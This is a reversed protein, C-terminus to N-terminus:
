MMRSKDNQDHSPTSGHGTPSSERTSIPSASGVRKQTRSPDSRKFKHRVFRMLYANIRQLFPYLAPLPDDGARRRRSRKERRGTRNIARARFDASFRSPRAM